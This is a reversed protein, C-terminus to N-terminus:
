LRPAEALISAAQGNAALGPKKGALMANAEQINMEALKADMSGAPAAAQMRKWHAVAQKYDARDFAESGALALAKLHKPDAALARKVIARSEDDWKRDNALVRADAWEALLTAGPPSIEAARAYAAVAERPQRLEGYTHALLVWGEANNPDKELKSALRKVMVKLDGGTNGQSPEAAPARTSIAAIPMNVRANQGGPKFYFDAAAVVVAVVPLIWLLQRRPNGAPQGLMRAHLAAQRREFEAEGVRGDARALLLERLETGADKERRLFGGAFSLLVVVLMVGVIVASIIM